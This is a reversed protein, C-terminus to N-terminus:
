ISPLLIPSGMLDDFIVLTCVKCSCRYLVISLFIADFQPEMQRVINHFCSQYSHYLPVTFAERFVSKWDEGSHVLLSSLVSLYRFSLGLSPLGLARHTNRIGQAERSLIWMLPFLICSFGRTPVIFLRRRGAGSFKSSVGHPLYNSPPPIIAGYTVPM